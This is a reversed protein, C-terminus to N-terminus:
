RGKRDKVQRDSLSALLNVRLCFVSAMGPHRSGTGEDGEAENRM